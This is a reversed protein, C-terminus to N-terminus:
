FVTPAAAVEGGVAPPPVHKRRRLKAPSQVRLGPCTACAYRSSTSTNWAPTFTPCGAKLARRASSTEEVLSAWARASTTSWAAHVSRTSRAVASEAGSHATPYRALNLNPALSTKVAADKRLVRLPVGGHLLKVLSM